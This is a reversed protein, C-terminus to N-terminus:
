DTHRLPILLIDILVEALLRLTQHSHSFHTNRLSILPLRHTQPLIPTTQIDPPHILTTQTVLSQALIPTIGFINSKWYNEYISNSKNVAQFFLSILQYTQSYEKIKFTLSISMIKMETRKFLLKKLFSWHAETRWSLEDLSTKRKKKRLMRSLRASSTQEAECWPKVFNQNAKGM